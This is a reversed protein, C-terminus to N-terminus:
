QLDHCAYALVSDRCRACAVYWQPEISQGDDEMFTLLADDHPNFLMRTAMSLRTFIYRPSAADKGGQIRTGFQGSPVLLAINNSGVHTQAMNVITGNLSAEGHHYASHESVYGALQAVKIDSTLKRKMCSFLVKRQGPKLGDVMSPISRVNDAMSFLILEKNVFESYTIKEVSHDLFTGAKFGRLWDKREEIKKKSFAMDIAVDDEAGGYSFSKQHDDMEAFYEKAEKPTSTGLGKYYKITWGKTSSQDELWTAYEPLTFFTHSRSGKTAKVIPTIFEVLFEPM